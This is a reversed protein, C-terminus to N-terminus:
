ATAKQHPDYLGSIMEVTAKQHPDYLGSIINPLIVEVNFLFGENEERRSGM